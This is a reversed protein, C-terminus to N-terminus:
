AIPAFSEAMTLLRVGHGEAAEVYYSLTLHYSGDGGDSTFLHIQVTDDWGIGSRVDFRYGLPKNWIEPESVGAWTKGAQEKAAAAADEPLVGPLRLIQMECLPLIAYRERQQDILEQIKAEREQGALGELLAANGEIVNERSITVPTTRIYWTGGVQEMYYREPDFDIFFGPKEEAHGTISDENGPLLQQMWHLAGGSAESGPILAAMLILCLAAAAATVAALRLRRMRRGSNGQGPATEDVFRSRINTLANMLEVPGVSAGEQLLCNRMQQCLRRLKKETRRRSFGHEQALDERTRVYWYRGLFLMRDPLKLGLLFHNLADTVARRQAKQQRTDAEPLCQRLEDLVLHLEDSGPEEPRLVRDLALNRIIKGLLPMLSAPRRPPMLDWLRRYTEEVCSECTHPNGLINNALTRCFTGYKGDTQQAADETRQWYLEVLESDDM